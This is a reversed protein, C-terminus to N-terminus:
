NTADQENVVSFVFHDYFINNKYVNSKLVGDLVFGNKLLVNKSGENYELVDAYIRKLKMTNFGYNVMWRVAKTTIGQRWFPEGIWFCLEASNRHVDPQEHLSIEGIAEGSVVIAFRNQISQEKLQQIWNCAFQLTYPYPYSERQNIAINKNNGFKVFSAADKYFISRILIDTDIHEKITSM